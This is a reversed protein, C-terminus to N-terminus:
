RRVAVEGLMTRLAACAKRVAVGVAGDASEISALAELAERALRSREEERAVAGVASEYEELAAQARKLTDHVAARSVGFQEAIEGLSLDEGYHLSVVKRQNDTLLLGYQDALMAMRVFRELYAGGKRSLL